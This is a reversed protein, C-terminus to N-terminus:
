QIYRRLFDATQADSLTSRFEFGCYGEYNLEKLLALLDGYPVNGTGPQHRGPVDAIHIHGILDINERIVSFLDGGMMQEHYLDLLVKLRPSNVQRVLDFLDKARPLFYNPRDIDNLAEVVLQLEEQEAVRAAAQLCTLVNQLQEEKPLPLTEGVLLIIGSADLARYVPATEKLAAVLEEARGANLIGRSLDYSLREDASDLNFISVALRNERLKQHLVPLDKNSWKWFEAAEIGSQRVLAPRDYFDHEGFLMDICASYLM